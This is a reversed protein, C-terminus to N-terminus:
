HGRRPRPPSPHSARSTPPAPDPEGPRRLWRWTRGTVIARITSASVGIEAALQQHTIGDWDYQDRIYRVQADTLKRHGAPGPLAEDAYGVTGKVLQDVLSAEWSGPRGAILADSSGLQGAARALVAALWGAFDHETRAATLVAAVAQDTYPRTV